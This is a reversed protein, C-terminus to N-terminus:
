FFRYIKGVLEIFPDFSSSVPVGFYDLFMGVGIVGFPLFLLLCYLTGVIAFIRVSFGKLIFYHRRRPTYSGGRPPDGMDGRGQALHGMHGQSGSEPGQARHSVRAHNSGEHPSVREIRLPQPHKVSHTTAPGTRCFM